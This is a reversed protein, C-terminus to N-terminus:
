LDSLIIYISDYLGSKDTVKNYLVESDFPMNHTQAIIRGLDIILTAKEDYDVLTSRLLKEDV